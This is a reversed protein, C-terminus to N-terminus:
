DQLQGKTEAKAIRDAAEDPPALRVFDAFSRRALEKGRWIQDYEEETVTFEKKVERKVRNGDADTM